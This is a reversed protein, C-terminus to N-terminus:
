MVVTNLKKNGKSNTGPPFQHASGAAPVYAPPADQKLIPTNENATAM